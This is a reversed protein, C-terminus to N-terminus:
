IIEENIISQKRSNTYFKFAIKDIIQQKNV